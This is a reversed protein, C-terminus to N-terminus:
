AHGSGLAALDRRFRGDAPVQRGCIHSHGCPGQCAPAAPARVVEAERAIVFYRGKEGSSQDGTAIVVILACPKECQDVPMVSKM